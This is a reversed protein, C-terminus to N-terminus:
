LTESLSEHVEDLHDLNVREIEHAARLVELSHTALIVQSDWDRAFRRLQHVVRRQLTPHLSNEIEDIAIVAGNPRRRALEGFLLLCQQEGSPLQDLRVWEGANQGASWPPPAWARGEKVTIRREEGLITEVAEVFPRLNKRESSGQELDLYNQWVWLQELSGQWRDESSFRFRWRREEPPPEIAGAKSVKLRRDHPFYVLGGYPEAMGQQMLLISKRLEFVFPADSVYM